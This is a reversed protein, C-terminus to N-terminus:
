HRFLKQAKTIGLLSIGSSVERVRGDGELFIVTPTISVNFQKTIFENEDFALEFPYKEKAWFEKAVLESEGLNIAFIRSGPLEGRDVARRFHEMEVHCPTCWTAWFLFVAPQNDPIKISNEGQMKLMSPIM